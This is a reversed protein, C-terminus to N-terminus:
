RSVRRPRALSALSLLSHRRTQSPSAPPPRTISPVQRARRRARTEVADAPPSGRPMRASDRSWRSSSAASCPSRSAIQRKPRRPRSAISAARTACGTISRRESARSGPPARARRAAARRSGRSRAAAQAQARTGSDAHFSSTETPANPIATGRERQHRTAAAQRREVACSARPGLARQRESATSRPSRRRDAGDLPRLRHGSRPRRESEREARSRRGPTPRPPTALM